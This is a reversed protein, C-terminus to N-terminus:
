VEQLSSQYKKAKTQSDKLKAMLQNKEEKENIVAVQLNNKDEIEKNLQNVHSYLAEQM